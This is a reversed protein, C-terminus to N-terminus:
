LDYLCEVWPKGQERKSYLSLYIGHVGIVNKFGGNDM